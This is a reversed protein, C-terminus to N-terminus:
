EPIPPSPKTLAGATAVRATGASTTLACSIQATPIATTRWIAMMPLVLKRSPPQPPLFWKWGEQRPKREPWEVKIGKETSWRKPLDDVKLIANENGQSNFQVVVAEPVEQEFLEESSRPYIARQNPTKGVESGEPADVDCAIRAGGVPAGADIELVSLVRYLEYGTSNTGTARLGGGSLRMTGGGGPLEAPKSDPIPKSQVWEVEAASGGGKDTTLLAAAVCAILGVAVVVLVGRPMKSDDSGGSGGNSAENMPAVTNSDTM